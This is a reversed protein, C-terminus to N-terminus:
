RKNFAPPMTSPQNWADSEQTVKADCESCLHGKDAPKDCPNGHGHGTTTCDCKQESM